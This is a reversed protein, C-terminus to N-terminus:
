GLGHFHEIRPGLRNACRGLAMRRFNATAGSCGSVSSQDGHLQIALEVGSRICRPSWGHRRSNRDVSRSGIFYGVVACHSASNVRIEYGRACEASEPHRLACDRLLLKVILQRFFEADVFELKTNQVREVIFAGRDSALDEASAHADTCAKFAQAWAPIAGVFFRSTEIGRLIRRQTPTAPIHYPHPLVDRAFGDVIRTPNCRFPRTAIWMPATSMPCPDAVTTVCIQACARPTGSSLNSRTGGSVSRVGSQPLVEAERWVKTLPLAAMIAPSCNRAAIRAIHLAGASAEIRRCSHARDISLPSSRSFNSRHLSGSSARPYTKLASAVKSGGVFGNSSSPWPTGYAM